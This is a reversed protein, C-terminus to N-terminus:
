PRAARRGPPHDPRLWPATSKAVSEALERRIDAGTAKGDLLQATM